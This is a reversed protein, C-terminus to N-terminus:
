MFSKIQGAITDLKERSIGSTGGFSHIKQGEFRPILHVHIHFIDQNAATGNQQVISIGDPKIAERTAEAIHKVVKHIKCILEEPVDYINEYHEKSIVLAHGESVPRIDMFALVEDDEYIISSPAEKRVIKCFICSQRELRREDFM